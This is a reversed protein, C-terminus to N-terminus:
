RVAAQSDERCREAVVVHLMAAAFSWIPHPLAQHFRQRESDSPMEMLAGLDRLMALEPAVQNDNIKLARALGQAYVVGDGHAAIAALVDLRHERRMLKRSAAIVESRTGDWDHKM